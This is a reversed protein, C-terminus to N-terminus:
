AASAKILTSPAHPLPAQLDRIIAHGLVCLADAEDPGGFTWGLERCRQQVVEKSESKGTEDNWRGRGTFTKRATSVNIERIDVGRAFALGFLIARYGPLQLAAYSGPIDQDEGERTKKGRPIAAEFYIRGPRVDAILALINRTFRGFRQREREPGAPWRTVEGLTLLKTSPIAERHPMWAAGTQGGLDLALLPFM